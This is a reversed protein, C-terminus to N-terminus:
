RSVQLHWMQHGFFLRTGVRKFGLSTYLREAHPNDSDVILGVRENGESFARDRLAAILAKGVGRGRFEPLVGISDLYFEGAETEDAINPTRGLRSQLIAFTGNRLATLQAGDYGVIAGVKTNDVQAVLAYCWSYQTNEAAAIETLITLYDNGCYEKLALEDGIAMEVARAIIPADSVSAPRITINATM